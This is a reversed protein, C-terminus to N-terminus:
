HSSKPSLFIPRFMVGEFKPYNMSKYWEGAKRINSDKQFDNMFLFSFLLTDMNQEGNEFTKNESKQCNTGRTFNAYFPLLYEKRINGNKTISEKNWFSNAKKLVIELKDSLTKPVGSSFIINEMNGSEDFSFKVSGYTQICQQNLDATLSDKFMTYVYGEFSYGQYNFKPINDNSQSFLKSQISTFMLLIIIMSNKRKMNSM